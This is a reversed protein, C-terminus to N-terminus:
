TTFGVVLQAAETPVDLQPAHGVGDLVVRDAHPLWNERYRAATRPWALLRDDTGWVVRVPCDIAAADLPYGHEDAFAVMPAVACRTVGVLQHALLDAPIHEYAVTTTATARRRGALTAVLTAAHPALPVLADHLTVFEALTDHFSPDDAAWGGAPAFAVVSRGRGRAALQLAVYGGLSNGVLHARDWGADDLAREVADALTDGTITSPLAPGGAHGPLTLALVEHHRELVPLVLEWARWTDTFGHLCVLPPGSGGRHFPTFALAV